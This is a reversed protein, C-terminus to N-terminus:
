GLEGCGAARVQWVRREPASSWATLHPYRSLRSSFPILPVYIFPPYMYRADRVIFSLQCDLLM